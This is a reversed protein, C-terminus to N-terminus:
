EDEAAVPQGAHGARIADLARILRRHEKATLMGAAAENAQDVVPDLQRLLALGAPTIWCLVRRRDPGSRERRVFGAAELRDLLRTVGPATEIMRNRVALTPLGQDGAGRLIRLVNYQSLTVGAPEIVKAFQREVMAATRLLSVVTEHAPSRFPRTQQIEAQITSETRQKKPKRAM